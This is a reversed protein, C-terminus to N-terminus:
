EAPEACQECTTVVKWKKSRAFALAATKTPCGTKPSKTYVGGETDGGGIVPCAATHLEATKSTAAARHLVYGNVKHRAIWDAYEPEKRSFAVCDESSRDAESAIAAIKGRLDAMLRDAHSQQSKGAM